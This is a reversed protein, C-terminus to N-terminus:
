SVANMARILNRNKTTKRIKLSHAELPTGHANTAFDATMTKTRM